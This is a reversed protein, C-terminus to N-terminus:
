LDKPRIQQVLLAIEGDHMARRQKLIFFIVHVHLNCYTRIIIYLEKLICLIALQCEKCCNGDYYMGTCQNVNGYAALKTEYVTVSASM